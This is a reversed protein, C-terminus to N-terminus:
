IKARKWLTSEIDYKEAIHDIKADQTTALIELFKKFESEFKM